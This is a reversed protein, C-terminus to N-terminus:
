LGYKSKHGDDLYLCTNNDIEISEGTYQGTMNLLVHDISACATGNNNVTPIIFTEFGTDSCSTKNELRCLICLGDNSVHYYHNDICNHITTNDHGHLTYDEYPCQKIIIGSVADDYVEPNELTILSSLQNTYNITSNINSVGTVLTPLPDYVPYKTDTITVEITETKEISQTNNMQSVISYSLTINFPDSSPKISTINCDINIGTNNNYIRERQNIREQIEDTLNKSSNSLPKKNKIVSQTVNSLSEKTITIIDDEFDATLSSLRESEINDSTINVYDNSHNITIILLMVIPILLIFVFLGTVYGEKDKIIKM